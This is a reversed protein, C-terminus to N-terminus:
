SYAGTAGGGGGGGGFCWWWWFVVVVVVVLVGGGSLRLCRCRCCCTWRGVRKGGMNGPCEMQLWHRCIKLCRDDTISAIAHNNLPPCSSLWPLWCGDIHLVVDIQSCKMKCSWCVVAIQHLLTQLNHGSAVQNECAKAKLQIALAFERHAEQASRFCSTHLYTCEYYSNM